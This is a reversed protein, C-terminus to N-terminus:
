REYDPLPELDPLPEFDPPLPIIIRVPPSNGPDTPNDYEPPPIPDPLPETPWDITMSTSCCSDDFLMEVTLVIFGVFEVGFGTLIIAAACPVEVPALSVIAITLGGIIIIQTGPSDEWATMGLSDVSGLGNNFCFGYLWPDTVLDVRGHSFFADRSIEAIHLAEVMSAVAPQQRSSILIHIRAM